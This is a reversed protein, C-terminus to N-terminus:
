DSRNPAGARGAEGKRRQPKKNSQKVLRLLAVLHGNLETFHKAGDSWEADGARAILVNLQKSQLQDSMAKLGSIAKNIDDITPMDSVSQDSEARPM